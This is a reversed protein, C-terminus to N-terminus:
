PNVTVDIPNGARRDRCPEFYLDRESELVDRIAVAPFASSAPAWSSLTRVPHREPHWRPRPASIWSARGSWGVSAFHRLLFVHFIPVYHANKSAGVHAKVDTYRGEVHMRHLEAAALPAGGPGTFYVDYDPDFLVWRREPEIWAEAVVHGSGTPDVLSLIRAFGGAAQVLQAFMRAIDGCLFRAGGDAADLMELLEYRGDAGPRAPPPWGSPFRDRLFDAYAAWTEIRHPPLAFLHAFRPDERVRRYYAADPDDCEFRLSTSCNCDAAANERRPGGVELGFAISRAVLGSAALRARERLLRDHRLWQATAVVGAILVLAVLLLPRRPRDLLTRTRMSAM